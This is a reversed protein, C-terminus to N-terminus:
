YIIASEVRYPQLRSEGKLDSLHILFSCGLIEAECRELLKCCAQMTGGTALLDDVIIVRQGPLVGDIHVHLEDSGYELDYSHSHTDFPLKGPKRIPVFGANLHLALPAAFIFGRAEAAAVVDVTEGDFPAAMAETAAKFAQPNLLLPAIDRYVIGPKPFDPIDRIFSKLDITM